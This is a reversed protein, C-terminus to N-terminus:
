GKLVMKQPYPNVFRGKLTHNMYKSASCFAVNENQTKTTNLIGYAEPCGLLYM